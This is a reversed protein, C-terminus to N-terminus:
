RRKRKDNVLVQKKVKKELQVIVEYKNQEMENVQLVKGKRGKLKIMDEMKPINELFQYLIIDNNEKFYVFRM